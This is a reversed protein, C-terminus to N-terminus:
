LGWDEITQILTEAIEDSNKELMLMHGNGKLGIESLHLHNHVVGMSLLFRSVKPDSERHYSAEATVITIPIGMLNPLRRGLGGENAPEWDLLDEPRDVAPVYTIPASTIGYPQAIAQESYGVLQALFPERYFPGGAPEVALIGKVLQPCADAVLWGTSGGQSHTLLIAPGIERLLSAIAKQAGAEMKAHDLLQPVQSAFFRDFVPDNRVGEGPWQTHQAAAPWLRHKATATWLKELISPPIDGGLQGDATVSNLSRGRTPEDIVYVAFGRRAFYQAWGQSGDPKTTFCTGTQGGGHVMIVPVPRVVDARWLEVYLSGTMGGSGDSETYEGPHYFVSVSVKGSVSADM